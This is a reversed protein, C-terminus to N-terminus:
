DDGPLIIDINEKEVVEGNADSSSNMKIQVNDLASPEGIREQNKSREQEFDNM